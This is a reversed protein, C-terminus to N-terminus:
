DASSYIWGTFPILLILVYLLAHSAAAAHRQWAPMTVPSPAPHSLRWAVRVVALLFVTVGIWKHWSFYKLKQPSLPLDVMYVALAFGCAILMFILWHLAIATNTYRAATPMLPRPR